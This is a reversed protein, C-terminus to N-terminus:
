KFTSQTPHRPYLHNMGDTIKGGDKELMLETHHIEM